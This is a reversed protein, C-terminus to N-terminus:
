VYRYELKTVTAYIRNYTIVPVMDLDSKIVTNADDKSCFRHGSLRQDSHTKIEVGAYTCGDVAVGETFSMIKVEIKKGKPARIWYNCKMFDERPFGGAKRDGTEDQLPKWTNTAQLVDGCGIPRKECYDGGYGSPCVCKLCNRPNPFGHNQCPASKKGKCNDTCNYYRNIMLLDYYGIFPSGLTETYQADKPVMTLKGKAVASSTAGYHMLSGYDYTINYNNNTRPTELMFQDLWDPKINTEDVTIFLNRDHRSHTHFLGLAHGLEHAATGISECGMGLSLNQIGGLRGVFSWCGDEMYVRISDQAIKSEVFNICTEAMWQQSAKKFVSQVQSSASSDFFYHVGKHWRKGPYAVDNYAQRKTRTGTIDAEVQEQQERSLAMDGQFMDNGRVQLNIEEISDGTPQVQDVNKRKFFKLRELLKQREEKTLHLKELIKDKYKSLKKKFNLMKQNVANKINKLTAKISSGGQKIMDKLSGFSKRLGEMNVLGTSVCVAMLLILILVRM